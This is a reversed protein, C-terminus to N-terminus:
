DVQTPKLVTFNYTIELFSYIYNFNIIKYLIIMKDSVSCVYLLLKGMLTYM